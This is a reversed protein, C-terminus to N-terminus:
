SKNAYILVMKSRSQSGKTISVNKRPVNFYEAVLQCVRVNARNDEAPEKVSVELRGNKGEIISDHKANSDVRVRVVTPEVNNTM